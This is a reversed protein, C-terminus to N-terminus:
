NACTRSELLLHMGLDTYGEKCAIALPTATEDDIQAQINLDAGCAVLLALCEMSNSMVAMHLAGFGVDAPIINCNAGLALLLSNHLTFSILM